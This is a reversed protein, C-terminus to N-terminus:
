FIHHVRVFCPVLRVPKSQSVRLQFQCLPSFHSMQWNSIKTKTRVKIDKIVEIYNGVSKWVNEWLFNQINQLRDYGFSYSYSIVKFALEWFSVELSVAWPRICLHDYRLFYSYSSSKPILNFSFILTSRVIIGFVWKVWFTVQERNQPLAECVYMCLFVIGSLIATAHSVQHRYTIQLFFLLSKYM